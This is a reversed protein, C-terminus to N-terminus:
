EGRNEYISERDFEAHPNGAPMRAALAEVKALWAEISRKNPPGDGPALRDSLAEIALAEPEKGERSAFEKLKAELEPSLRLTLNM